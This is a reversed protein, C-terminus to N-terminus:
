NAHCQLQTLQQFAQLGAGVFFAHRIEKSKFVDSYKIDKRKNRKQESLVTLYEVEDELREYNYIKTLVAVAEDRKNKFFFAM